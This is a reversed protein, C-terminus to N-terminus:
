AMLFLNLWDGTKNYFLLRMDVSSHAHHVIYDYADIV